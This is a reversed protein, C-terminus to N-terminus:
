LSNYKNLLELSTKNYEEVIARVEALKQNLADVQANAVEEDPADAYWEPVERQLTMERWDFTIKDTLASSCKTLSVRWAELKQEQKTRAAIWKDRAKNRAQEPNHYELEGPQM